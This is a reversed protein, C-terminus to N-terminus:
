NVAQLGQLGHMLWLIDIVNTLLPPTFFPKKGHRTSQTRSISTNALRARSLWPGPAAVLSSPLPHSDACQILFMPLLSSFFALLAWPLAKHSWFPSVFFAFIHTLRSCQLARLICVSMRLAKEPQTHTAYQPLSSGM